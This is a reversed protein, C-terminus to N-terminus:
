AEVGARVSPLDVTAFGAMLLRAHADQREQDM